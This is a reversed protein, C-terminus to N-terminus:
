VRRRDSIGDNDADKQVPNPLFCRCVIKLNPLAVASMIRFLIISAMLRSMDHTGNLLQSKRSEWNLRLLGHQNKKLYSHDMPRISPRRWMLM